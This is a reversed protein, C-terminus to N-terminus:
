AREDVPVFECIDLGCYDGVYDSKPRYLVPKLAADAYQEEIVHTV